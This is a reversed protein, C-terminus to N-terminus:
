HSTTLRARLTRLMRQCEDILAVAESVGEQTAFGLEIAIVLQTDVEALSGEAHSLFQLFEGTSKRAQGEAINSPVSVAARRIQSVLGYREEIPFMASLRYVIKVLKIAKQWVILDRYSRAGTLASM